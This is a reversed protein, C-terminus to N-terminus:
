PSMASAVSGSPECIMRLLPEVSEYLRPKPLSVRVTESVPSAKKSTCFAVVGNTTFVNLPEVVTSPVSNLTRAQGSSGAGAVCTATTEPTTRRVDSDPEKTVSVAPSADARACCADAGVAGADTSVSKARAQCFFPNLNVLVG